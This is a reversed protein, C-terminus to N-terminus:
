SFIAREAYFKQLFDEVSDEVEGLCYVFGADSLIIETELDEEGTLRSLRLPTFNEAFVTNGKLYIKNKSEGVLFDCFQKLDSTSFGEPVYRIIRDWKERLPALRFTYFGDVSYEATKELKRRIYAKDGELDAAILAACLLRKERKSLSVCLREDLYRFKYGVGIVEAIRERLQARLKSPEGVIIRMAAREEGFFIEESGGSKRVAESLANYIYTIHASNESRESVKIAEVVKNYAVNESKNVAFPKQVLPTLICISSCNARM